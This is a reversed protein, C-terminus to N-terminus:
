GSIGAACTFLFGVVSATNAKAGEKVGDVVGSKVANKLQDILPRRDITEDVGKPTVGLLALGRMTLSANLFDSPLDALTKDSDDYRIFGETVLFEISDQAIEVITSLADEVNVGEAAHYGVEDARLLIKRPFLEYLNVLTIAVIRNFIEINAPESKVM